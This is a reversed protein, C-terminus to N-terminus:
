GLVGSLDYGAQRGLAKLEDRGRAGSVAQGLSWTTISRTGSRCYALVPAPAEALIRNTTEVQEPTPSGRVPVHFYALGAAKAAAEIQHGSPQGPEENDPRNNIITRFGQRAAEEVDDVSIQPAVSIDETVPRFDAM